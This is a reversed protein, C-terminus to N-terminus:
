TLEPLQHNSMVPHSFQVSSFMEELSNKGVSTSIITMQILNMWKLESIGLIDTNLWAMQKVMDLKRQSTFRVNWTGTCYKEKCCPVKREGGSVDLVSCEKWKPGAVENKRSSNTIARRQEWYNIPCRRVKPSMKWHLITKGKWVTWPTRVSLISSHNAMQQGLPGCKILVRWYSGDM